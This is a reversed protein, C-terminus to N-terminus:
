RDDANRDQGPLRCRRSGVGRRGAAGPGPGAPAVALGGRPPVGGVDPPRAGRPGSRGPWRDVPDIVTRWGRASVGPGAVLDAAAARPRDGLHHVEAAHQGVGPDRLPDEHVDQGRAAITNVYSDAGVAAAVFRGSGAVVTTGSRVDDDAQKPMPDSEGTLNSEDVELGSVSHLHGDAPVQDGARLEVLEGLVVDSTAIETMRGDRVVRTTPQNLLALQDLKRKALYEQVIGIGSNVILIVGFLGDAFSGTTLVLVFLVGLIANFRTFVNSKIITWLPRSTAQETANVQGRSTREAVEASTLGTDPDTAPAVAISTPGTPPADTVPGSNWVGRM